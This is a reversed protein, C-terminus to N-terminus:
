NISTVKNSKGPDKVKALVLVSILILGAYIGYIVMYGLGSTIANFSDAMPGGIGTGVIGAGAGALNSIGLYKGSENAPVLETGLAWSCSMFFGYGLGIIGGSLYVLPMSKSTLLLLTGAAGMVASLLLIRKRGFRDGLKGGVLTAPVLFAAIMVLLKTNASAPNAVKLVDRLYYQAYDRVGTIAALILLRNIIWWIFSRQNVAEKGIGVSAGLFVGIFVSGAMCILGVLGVLLIYTLPLLSLTALYQSAASIAWIALRTTFFFIATLAFLRLTDKGLGTAPKESIPTEHVTFITVLATALFGAMMIGVVLWIQGNDIYKGIFFVLAMPLIEMLSKFGAAMGRQQTLVMDPILGQVAGQGINSSFQMLIIGLLLVAYATTFGFTPNFFRDASSGLFAPSLGVLFLCVISLLASVLIYPRRRGWRSTNRDSFMGAIPQILMAVVLGIVRINALATSKQNEPMFMLVLAPLLVPLINTTINLGLWYINMFILNYWKMTKEM